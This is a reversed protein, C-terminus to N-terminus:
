KESRLKDYFIRLHPPLKEEDFVSFRYLIVSKLAKKQNGKASNYEIHLNELDRIMGENYQPSEHYVKNELETYKPDFFLHLCFVAFPIGIIFCVVVIFIVRDRVM